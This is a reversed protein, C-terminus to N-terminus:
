VNHADVGIDYGTTYHHIRGKPCYYKRTKRKNGGKKGTKSEDMEVPETIKVPNDVLLPLQITWDSNSFTDKLFFTMFKYIWDRVLDCRDSIPMSQFFDGFTDSENYYKELKEIVQNPPKILRLFHEFSIDTKLENSYLLQHVKERYVKYKNQDKLQANFYKEYWTKGNFAISFYYLPIPTVHTGRKRFRSGKTIIEIESACEINSKDELEVETITPIQKHIYNLLTKIMIVSGGRELPINLSCEKDYMAYPIYASIPQNKDNYDISVNVCDVHNSGIKFNRSYINGKPSISTNDIIQFKYKGVDIVTIIPENM